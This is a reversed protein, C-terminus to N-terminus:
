CTLHLIANTRKQEGRLLGIAKATPVMVLEVDRSRAEEVVEPMVPLAGDAGTGIMLRRCKWPIDEHISLPTHGYRARFPKSEAKRRKRIEGHDVIVDHDYEVGDITISGFSYDTFRM